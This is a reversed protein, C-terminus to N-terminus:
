AYMVTWMYALLVDSVTFTM